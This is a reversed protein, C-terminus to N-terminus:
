SYFNNAEFYAEDIIKDLEREYDNNFKNSINLHDLIESFKTWGNKRLELWLVRRIASNKTQKLCPIM